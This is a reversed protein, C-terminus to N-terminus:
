GVELMYINWLIVSKAIGFYRTSRKHNRFNAVFHSWRGTQTTSNHYVSWKLKAVDWAFGSDSGMIESSGGTPLVGVVM